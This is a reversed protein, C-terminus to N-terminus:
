DSEWRCKKCLLYDQRPGDGCASLKILGNQLDIDEFSVGEVGSKILEESYFHAETVDKASVKFGGIILADAFDDEMSFYIIRKAMFPTITQRFRITELLQNKEEIEDGNAASRTKNNRKEENELWSNGGQQLHYKIPCQEYGWNWQSDQILQSLKM